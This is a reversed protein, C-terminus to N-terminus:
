HFGTQFYPIILVSVFNDYETSTEAAVGISTGGIQSGVTNANQTAYIMAGCQIKNIPQHKRMRSIGSCRVAGLTGQPVTTELVGLFGSTSATGSFKLPVGSGNELIILDGSTGTSGMLTNPFHLAPFKNVSAM